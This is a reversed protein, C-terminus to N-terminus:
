LATQRDATRGDASKDREVAQNYEDFVSEMLCGNRHICDFDVWFIWTHIAITAFAATLHMWKWQENTDILAGFAGTVVLSLAGLLTLKAIRGKFERTRAIPSQDLHRILVAQSIMRSTAAFYTFVVVHILVSLVITFLALAFHQVYLHKGEALLGLVASSVLLLIDAVAMASFVRNM